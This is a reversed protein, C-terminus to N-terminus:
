RGVIGMKNILIDLQEDIATIMRSAANYSHGFRVMNTMEEDLSVGSISQRQQEIQGVVVKQAAAMKKIHNAETGVATIIGKYVTSFNDANGSSNKAAILGSLKRANEANGRHDNGAAPDIQVSSAAINFPNGLIESSVKFNKATVTDWASSTDAYLDSDSLAALGAADLSTGNDANYVAEFAARNPGFFNIGSQSPSAGNPITFGQRHVANFDKTIRKVLSDLQAVVHPIGFNDSTNGDRVHFLGSLSGSQRSMDMPNSAGRWFVAKMDGNGVITNNNPVTRTELQNASIHRVLNNGDLTVTFYGASDESYRVDVIGSLTDMLLQRQDRLDNAKAGNLEFSFIQENYLAIDKAISNVQEVTAEITANLTHQQESLRGYYYNFSDTLKIANQIVSQRIASDAPQEVLKDLSSYFSSFMTSLGSSTEMADLENNFIDEIYSFYQEKTNWESAKNTESKYQYDLFKNRIQEVNQTRVGSGSMGSLDARFLTNTKSVPVSETNLRQRSFGKTDVNAINHSTLNLEERSTYMGTKAIEFGYFTSRM